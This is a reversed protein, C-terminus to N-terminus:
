IEFTVEGRWTLKDRKNIEKLRKAAEKINPLYKEYFNDPEYAFGPIVYLYLTDDDKIILGQKGNPATEPLVRIGSNIYEDPLKWLSKLCVSKVVFVKKGRLFSKELKIRIKM